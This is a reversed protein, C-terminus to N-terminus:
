EHEENDDRDTIIELRNEWGIANIADIESQMLEIQIPKSPDMDWQGLQQGLEAHPDTLVVRVASWEMPQPPNYASTGTRPDVHWHLHVAAHVHAVNDSGPLRVRDGQRVDAWTRDAWRLQDVLDPHEDVLQTTLADVLARTASTLDSRLPLAGLGHAKLAAQVVAEKLRAIEFGDSMGEDNM